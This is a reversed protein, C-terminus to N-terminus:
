LNSAMNRIKEILKKFHSLETLPNLQTTRLYDKGLLNTKVIYYDGERLIAERIKLNLSNAETDDSPVFRFCLINTEPELAIEFDPQSDIWAAAEKTTEHIRDLYAEIQDLGHYLIINMVKLAMMNKTCEYTRKGLNYWDKEDSLLYAAKDSFTRYSDDGDKFIVATALAPTLLLKHFDMIFSDARHIGQLKDRLASSFLNAGGHAADVHFWIQEKHCLDGIAQLDDFSGTSTTCASGVILAIERGSARVQEVMDPLLETKMKFRDDVPIKVIGEEGWGMTKAARAVCYHAEESVLVTWKTSPSLGRAAIASERAAIMATLNALTGGSTLFGSCSKEYGAKSGVMDILYREFITMAMGMEYVAGGNNLYSSMLGGLAGLVAPGNVQHGIYKPNHLSISHDLVDQWFVHIDDYGAELKPLWWDYLSDADEYPMCPVEGKRQVALHDALMDIMDHGLKRFIDPDTFNM